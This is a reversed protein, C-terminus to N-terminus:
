AERAPVASTHAERSAIRMGEVRAAVALRARFKREEEDWKAQFTRSVLRPTRDLQRVGMALGGMLVAVPRTPREYPCPRGQQRARAEDMLYDDALHVLQDIRAPTAHESRAIEEIKSEPLRRSRGGIRGMEAWRTAAERVLALCQDIHWQAVQGRLWHASAEAADM